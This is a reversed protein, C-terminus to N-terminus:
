EVLALAAHRPLGLIANLLRIVREQSANIAEVPVAPHEESECLVHDGVEPLETRLTRFYAFLGNPCHVCFAGNRKNIRAVTGSVM